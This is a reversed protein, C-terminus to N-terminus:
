EKPEKLVLGRIVIVQGPWLGRPLVRSCPVEQCFHSLVSITVVPTDPDRVLLIGGPVYPGLSVLTPSRRQLSAHLLSLGAWTGLM